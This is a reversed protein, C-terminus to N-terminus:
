DWVVNKHSDLGLLVEIESVPRNTNLSQCHCNVTQTLNPVKFGKNVIVSDPVVSYFILKLKRKLTEKYIYVGKINIGPIVCKM